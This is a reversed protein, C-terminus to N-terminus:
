TTPHWSNMGKGFVPPAVQGAGGISSRWDECTEVALPAAEAKMRRRAFEAVIALRDRNLDALALRGEGFHAAQQALESVIDPGFSSAAGIVVIKRAKM